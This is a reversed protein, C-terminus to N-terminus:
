KSKAFCPVLRGTFPEFRATVKDGIELDNDGHAMM